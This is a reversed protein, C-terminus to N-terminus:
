LRAHVDHDAPRAGDGNPRAAAEAPGLQEGDGDGAAEGAGRHHLEAQVGAGAAPREGRQHVPAPRRAQGGHRASEKGPLQHPSIMTLVLAKSVARGGGLAQATLCLKLRCHYNGHSM